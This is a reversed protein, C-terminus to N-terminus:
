IVHPSALLQGHAQSGELGNHAVLVIYHVDPFLLLEFLLLAHCLLTSAFLLVLCDLDKHGCVHLVSPLNGLLVSTLSCVKCAEDSEGATLHM